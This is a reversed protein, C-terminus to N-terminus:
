RAAGKGEVHERLLTLIEKQDSRIERIDSQMKATDGEVRAIRERLNPSGSQEIVSLRHDISAYVLGGIALLAGLILGVAWQFAPRDFTGTPEIPDSSDDRRTV